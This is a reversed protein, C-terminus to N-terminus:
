KRSGLAARITAEIEAAGEEGIVPEYKVRIAQYARRLRNVACSLDHMLCLAFLWIFALQLHDNVQVWWAEYMELANGVHTMGCTFFFGGAFLATWPMIRMLSGFAQPLLVMALVYGLAIGIHAFAHLGWADALVTM